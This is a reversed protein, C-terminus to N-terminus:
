RGRGALPTTGYAMRTVGQGYSQRDHWPGFHGETLLMRIADTRYYRAEELASWTAKYRAAGYWQDLVPDYIRGNSPTLVWAHGIRGIKPSDVTGHILVVNDRAIAIRGSLEYCRGIRSRAGNASM